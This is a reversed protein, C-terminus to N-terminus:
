IQSLLTEINGVIDYVAKASPVQADTSSSSVSTTIASTEVLQFNPAQRIDSIEFVKTGNITSLWLNKSSGNDKKFMVGPNGNISTYLFNNFNGKDSKANLATTIASNAVPNTSGSDLSPDVDVSGGEITINGSGLISENNITKINTGSELTSQKSALATSIETAGSTESKTYYNSLSQHETLYGQNGVWTKTAMDNTATQVDGTTAYGNLASSTIYGVDNTFDSVNTPVTPITPKNTLDNYNGSFDSKANWATKEASTVHVTTDATHTEFDTTPTLGTINLASSTPSGYQLYDGLNLRANSLTNTGKKLRLEAYKMPNSTLDWQLTDGKGNLAATVVKNQVPNESTTSLETDVTISGGGQIDINGSGLISTNNITKINTGSVLTDQKTSTAATIANDVETKTYYNTLDGAQADTIIYYTDASVTGATILADYEAQTLEVTPNGGGGTGGIDYTIGSVQIKDIINSM